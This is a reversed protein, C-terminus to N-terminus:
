IARARPVGVALASAVADLQPSSPSPPSSPPIGHIHPAAGTPLPRPFRAADAAADSGRARARSAAGVLHSLQTKRLNRKASPRLPMGADQSARWVSNVAARESGLERDLHAGIMFRPRLAYTRPCDCQVMQADINKIHRRRLRRLLCRLSHSRVLWAQLGHYFRKGCCEPGAETPGAPPRVSCFHGHCDRPRTLGWWVLLLRAWRPDARQLEADLRELWGPFLRTDDQLILYTANGVDGWKHVIHEFLTHHSLYTGITGWASIVGSAATRNLYLHREVGREFYHKHTRLLDPSGRLAPWREFRVGSQQLQSEMFQRRRPSDDANIFFAREFLAAHAPTSSRGHRQVADADNEDTSSVSQHSVMGTAMSESRLPKGEHQPAILTRRLLLGVLLLAAIAATRSLCLNPSM